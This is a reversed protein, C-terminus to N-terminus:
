TGTPRRELRQAGFQPDTELWDELVTNKSGDSLTRSGAGTPNAPLVVVRLRRAIPPMGGYRSQVINWDLYHTGDGQTVDAIVRADAADRELPRAGANGLVVDRVAAGTLTAMNFATWWPFPTNTRVNSGPGCTAANPYTGYSGTCVTAAWQGDGSASSIGPGSNGELFTRSGADISGQKKSFGLIAGVAGSDPGPVIVNHLIMAETLGPANGEGDADGYHAPLTDSGSSSNTGNYTVNNAVILRSLSGWIPQRSWHHAFVNRVITADGGVGAGIGGWANPWLGEYILSDALLVETSGPGAQLFNNVETAWSCTVHDFVVHHVHSNDGGDGADGISCANFAPPPRRVRLHQVVVDHTDVLLRAGDLTFGGVGPDGDGEDGRPSTQGAITLYPSTISIQGTGSATGSVAFVATRACTPWTGDCGPRPAVCDQLDGLAGFTNSGDIALMDVTCVPGGRGGRTTAGFGQFHPRYGGFDGAIPPEPPIPEPPLPAIVLQVYAILAVVILTNVLWQGRDIRSEVWSFLGAVVLLVALLHLVDATTMM